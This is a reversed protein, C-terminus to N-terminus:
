PRALDLATSRAATGRFRDGWRGVGVGVRQLDGGEAQRVRNILKQVPRCDHGAAASQRAAGSIGPQVSASNGLRRTATDNAAMLFVPLLSVLSEICHWTSCFTIVRGSGQYGRRRHLVPPLCPNNMSM